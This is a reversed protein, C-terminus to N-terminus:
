SQQFFKKRFMYSLCMCFCDTMDDVKGYKLKELGAFDQRLTLVSRTLDVTFNKRETYKILKKSTFTKTKYVPNYYMVNKCPFKVKIWTWVHQAIQIAKINKRHQREILIVDVSAFNINTLTKTVNELIEKMKNVNLNGSVDKNNIEIIKGHKKYCMNNLCDPPYSEICWAFNKIGIDIACITFM